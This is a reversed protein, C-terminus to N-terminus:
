PPMVHILYRYLQLFQNVRHFFGLIILVFNGSSNIIAYYFKIRYVSTLEIFLFIQIKFFLALFMPTAFICLVEFRVTKDILRSCDFSGADMSTGRPGHDTPRGQSYFPHPVRNILIYAREIVKDVPFPVGAQSM